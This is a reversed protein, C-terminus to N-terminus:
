LLGLLYILPIIGMEYISFSLCYHLKSHSIIVVYGFDCLQYSVSGLSQAPLRATSVTNEVVNRASVHALLPLLQSSSTHVKSIGFRTRSSLKPHNKEERPRPKRM